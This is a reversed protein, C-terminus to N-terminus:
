NNKDKPFLSGIILAPLGIINISTTTLLAIIVNDSLPLSCFIVIGIFIMYLTVVYQTWIFIKRKLKTDQALNLNKLKKNILDENRYPDENTDFQDLFEKHLKDSNNM